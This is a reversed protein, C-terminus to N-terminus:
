GLRHVCRKDAKVPTDRSLNTRARIDLNVATYIRTGLNTRTSMKM